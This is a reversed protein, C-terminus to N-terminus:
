ETFYGYADFFAVNTIQNMNSASDWLMVRIEPEDYGAPLTVFLKQVESNGLAPTSVVKVDVDILKNTARDYLGAIVVSGEVPVDATNSLTVNVETEGEELYESVAGGKKFAIASMTPLKDYWVGTVGGLVFSKGTYAFDGYTNGELRLCYNPIFSKNAILSKLTKLFPNTGYKTISFEVTKWEGNTNPLSVSAGGGTEKKFYKICKNNADFYTSYDAALLGKIIEAESAPLTEGVEVQYARQFMARISAGGTTKYRYRIADVATLDFSDPMAFQGGAYSGAGTNGGTVVLAYGTGNENAGAVYEMKAPVSVTGGGTWVGWSGWKTTEFDESIEKRVQTSESSYSYWYAKISEITAASSTLNIMATSTYKSTTPDFYSKFEKLDDATLTGGEFSAMSLSASAFEGNTSPLEVTKSSGKERIRLQVKLSSTTKYKFVIENVNSLDSGFTSLAVFPLTGGQINLVNGNTDYTGFSGETDWIDWPKVGEQFNTAVTKDTVRVKSNAPPTLDEANVVFTASMSFIMAVVLMLALVRSKKM